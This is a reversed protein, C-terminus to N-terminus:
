TVKDPVLVHAGHPVSELRKLTRRLARIEARLKRVGGDARNLESLAQKHAEVLLLIVALEEGSIISWDGTQDPQGCTPCILPFNAM